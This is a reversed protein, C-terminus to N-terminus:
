IPLTQVYSKIHKKASSLTMSDKIQRPAENWVRAADNIFSHSQINSLGSIILDPKNLSKLGSRKQVDNRKIWQIPYSKINHSKWVETLKIQANIQNVSLMKTDKFITKTNIRDILSTGNVFRAFKNQTVQLSELLSDTPDQDSTRVKGYLQVGYRIKSTYLSDNIRKMREKSIVRSLRRLLYLRSNM